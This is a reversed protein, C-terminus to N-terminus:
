GCPRGGLSIYRFYRTQYALTAPENLVDYQKQSHTVFLVSFIVYPLPFQLSSFILLFLLVVKIRLSFYEQCESHYYQHFYSQSLRVVSCNAESLLM